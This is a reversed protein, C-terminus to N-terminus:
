ETRYEIQGGKAIRIQTQRISHNKLQLKGQQMLWIERRSARLNGGSSFERKFPPEIKKGKHSLKKGNWTKHSM